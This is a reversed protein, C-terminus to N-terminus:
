DEDAGEIAALFEAPTVVAVDGFPHLSLLDNDGSIIYKAGGSIAVELFKDDRTDRCVRVEETAEIFNAREVLAELFEERQAPTVYRDFKERQLVEALEELTAQSLLIEGLRLAQLLARGPTSHEFLLASILTNTDFVYRVSSM